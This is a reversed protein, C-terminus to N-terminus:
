VEFIEIQIKRRRYSESVNQHKIHEEITKSFTIIDDIYFCAFGSLKGKRIISSMVKRM